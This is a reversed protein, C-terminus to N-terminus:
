ELGAAHRGLKKLLEIAQARESQSLGAAAAEMAAAHGSFATEILRRGSETLHVVRTRRDAPENCRQVLERAELRDVAATISGSTLYVRQGIANVPMPGKHLLLELVAFDSFGLGTARVQRVAHARLSEYTKWLILWLHLGSTDM